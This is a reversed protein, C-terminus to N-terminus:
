MHDWLEVIGEELLKMANFPDLWFSLEAREQMEARWATYEEVRQIDKWNQFSSNHDYPMYAGFHRRSRWGPHMADYVAEAAETYEPTWRVYDVPLPYERAFNQQWQRLSLADMKQHDIFLTM